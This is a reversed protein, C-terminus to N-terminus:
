VGFTYITGIFNRTLKNGRMLQKKMVYSFANLLFAELQSQIKYFKLKKTAAELRKTLRCKAAKQLTPTLVVTVAM